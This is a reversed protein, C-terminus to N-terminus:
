SDMDTEFKRIPAGGGNIMSKQSQNNQKMSKYTYVHMNSKILDIHFGDQANM